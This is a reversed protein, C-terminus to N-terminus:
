IEKATIQEFEDLSSYILNIGIINNNNIDDKSDSSSSSSSDSSSGSGSDSTIIEWVTFDRSNFTYLENYLQGTSDLGLQNIIKLRGLNENKQLENLDIGEFADQNLKIKGVRSEDFKKSDGENATLIYQKGDSTQLYDISDPMRLGYLNPYNQINISGDKNSADLGHGPISYDHFGLSFINIIEKEDIDLVAIANNEQLTIYAYKDNNDVVCYEPEANISFSETKYPLYIDLPLTKSGGADFENFNVNTIKFTKTNVLTISGPPNILPNPSKNDDAEGECSIIITKGNSTTTIHDPLYCDTLKLIKSIQLTSPNIFILYGFEEAVKTPSVTAYIYQNIKSYTVSTIADISIGDFNNIASEININKILKMPINVNEINSITAVFSTVDVTLLDGNASFILSNVIDIAISEVGDIGVNDPLYLSGVQTLVNSSLTLQFYYLLSVIAVLRSM